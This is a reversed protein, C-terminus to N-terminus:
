TTTPGAGLTPDSSRTSCTRSSSLAGVIVPLKRYLSPEPFREELRGIIATSDGIPEGDLGLAPVTSHRGRTAILSALQHLVGTALRRIHPVRKLDLAWRAKERYHSVPVHILIPRGDRPRIHSEEPRQREKGGYGRRRYALTATTVAFRRGAWATLRASWRSVMTLSRGAVREYEHAPRAISYPSPACHRTPPGKGRAQRRSGVTATTWVFRRRDSWNNRERNLTLGQM